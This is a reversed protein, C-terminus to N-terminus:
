GLYLEGFIRDGICCKKFTMLNETLTGTKDTFIYQIQGLMDCCSHGRAQAPTDSEEHYMDLDNNIYFNHFM